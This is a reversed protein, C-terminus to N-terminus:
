QSIGSFCLPVQERTYRTTESNNTSHPLFHPLQSGPTTAQFAIAAHQPPRVESQTCFGQQGCESQGAELTIEGNQEGTILGRRMLDNAAKTVCSVYKGHNMWPGSSGQPGECPCLQGISCGTAPDILEGTVTFECVDDNGLVGDGDIDNDCVDGADDSDFDAQDPNAVLACNDVGDTVGDNDDDADCVHRGLPPQFENL